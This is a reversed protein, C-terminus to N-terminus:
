RGSSRLIRPARKLPTVRIEGGEMEANLTASRQDLLLIDVRIEGTVHFVGEAAEVARFVFTGLYVEDETGVIGSLLANGVRTEQNAVVPYANMGKFAYDSRASDIFARDVLLGGSESGGGGTVVLGIQYARLEPLGSGYVDVATEESPRILVRAPILRIRAMPGATPCASMSAATECTSGPYPLDQFADLVAVIDFVDVTRDPVDHRLDDGHLDCRPYVDRFGDLVCVIDFVNVEGSNDTDGWMWTTTSAPASLNEPERAARVDARVSYQTSPIIEADAAFITGWAVSSRFVPEDDLHGSSNLYRPLCSVDLSAVQLAVSDLGPPPTIELYRPGVASVVPPSIVDCTDTVENCITGSLCPPPRDVCIGGECAEAGSCYLGDDCTLPTHVCGTVSDCTDSTCADGDDCDVASNVCGEVPNCTDDTCMNGDNCVLAPGGTCAGENCTDTTTCADGDDCAGGENAPATRCAGTVPDCAGVYCTGGLWSCDMASGACAGNVCTDALTCRDQDDCPQGDELPAHQCTNGMCTDHTCSDMDECDCDVICCAPLGDGVCEGSGCHDGSTCPNGDDCPLTNHAFVCTSLVCTDSTCPDDDDCDGDMGCTSPIVRRLDTFDQTVTGASWLNPAGFTSSTGDNYNSLPTILPTPDEELKFVEDNGIGSLPQIGEGAPGFRSLGAADRITLQWNRNSVTFDQNTIYTGDATHAAQVHIWWDGGAPDYGVDSPLNEGVTIITGARVDAWLLDNSLLLTQLTQGTGGTDDSIVFQWGRLDAHDTAVVIEFWDGGNGLVRGWFLDSGQNKLYEDAAVANYENLFVLPAADQNPQAPTPTLFPRLVGNGDPLKGFSVDPSLAPYALQDICEGAENYLGISGGAPNLAFNLHHVGEYPEADAWLLLWSWGCLRTGAPIPWKMPVAPDDSLFMNSVEATSTSPNYLEVWPDYEGVEDTKALANNALVENIYAPPIPELKAKNLASWTSGYNIRAKVETDVTLVLPGTYELATPSVAGGPLRPDTGDLTYYVTGTGPDISLQFGYPVSGGQQNFAPPPVFQGDFWTLRDALWQRMWAVEDDYTAGIYYNPWVYVGLIPWRVYNRVQAEALLLAYEDIHGLLRATVFAGRRFAYWRDAYRLSFEPDSFLRRWWPYDTDSLATNYWGTPLWGDLYSANGLTLNYDWVPGMNLRGGRDKFMYTSLRFGDINKTMEVMIHHDIFSDADMYAAYGELPDAFDPGYLVSEFENLFGTLYAAQSSTIEVEKPDVYALRQGRSTLFGTDGPDLRDKKIMYGGTVAPPSNDVSLLETINVRDPGLKIKEEFVYVGVYDASSVGNGTSDLFVEVFRTRVAYRGIDSSWLYALVDRMLTKDTYPAYMVWDSNAPFGLVSVDVDRNDEDWMELAFQKKPFGMSSSGRLKLGARGLHEPTDTARARGNTLEIFSALGLTYWNQNLPRGFTDVVVLPLNSDFALVSADLKSYLRRGIPGPAKEAELVRARLHTTGAIPIPGSYAQGTTETPDTGDLTYRIIGEVAATTLTVSFADTFMQDPRSFAVSASIDAFGANNHAGPTPTTFYRPPDNFSTQLLATLRPRMLFDGDAASDNIGQIALVNVGSQLLPISDTLDIREFMMAEPLPRDTEAASNWEMAAPANRRAVEQGNLYAAFGDEYKMQMFLQVFAGPDSVAFETRMWISSNIDQMEARVDTGIDAEFGVVALGGSATDGVLDFYTANFASHSGQAAFLELASGGGHEFSVLRVYYGGAYPINFVALTDAAGRLGPFSSSYFYPDCSLELGFGDDSNVGFTWLGAEPILITGTAEVVFDDVNEGITTGPFPLDSGYRGSGGTNLFNIVASSQTVTYSHTLPDTIIAEASGLDLVAVNAKYFTVEFAPTVSSIFGFGLPGSTWSSCDYGPETWLTGLTADDITPVHYVTDASDSVLSAASQQLGYSVDTSQPPYSPAYAHVITAGDPKVLALYEQDRDLKFNTHPESGAVARNKGSAFVVLAEGRTLSVAPFQWKALDAPDDTLYWGSLDTSPFFINQLELWDSYEGDEDTLTTENAAMLETILTEPNAPQACVVDSWLPLGSVIVCVFVDRAVSCRRM